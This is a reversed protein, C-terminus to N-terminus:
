TLSGYWRQTMVVEPELRQPIGTGIADCGLICERLHAAFASTEIWVDCARWKSRVENRNTSTSKSPKRSVLRPLLVLLLLIISPCDIPGYWPLGKHFPTSLQPKGCCM